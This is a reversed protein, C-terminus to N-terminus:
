ETASELKIEIDWDGVGADMMVETHIIIAVCGLMSPANVLYRGYGHIMLLPELLRAAALPFFDDERLM